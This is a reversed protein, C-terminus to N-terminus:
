TTLQLAQNLQELREVTGIDRWQGHYIEASLQDHPNNLVDKFVTGLPHRKTPTYNIIAQPNLVSIGSFTYNQQQPHHTTLLGKDVGFDGNVNHDPNNVLVLHGVEPKLNLLQKFPYDTWIDGNILLVAEDGLLYQAQKIAGATELAEEEHSIEIDLGWRQGKGVFQHIQEALYATNIIVEKIGNQALRLLHHEVLAKGGVKLLPKPTHETLPRMREGRGAALIMAKM